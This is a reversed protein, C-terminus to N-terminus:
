RVNTYKAESSWFIVFGILFTGLGWAIMTSWESLTPTQNYMVSNRVATLFQYAPNAVMVELMFPHDVFREISFFVGSVFFWARTFLNVFHKLDPVWATAWAVLFLLGTGFLGMLLAILPVLVITWSLPTSWQTVLAMLIGVVLTPLADLITRLAASFVLAARPFRFASIFSKQSRIFGSGQSMLSTLLGFFTIGLVLYGIFNDIGRNTKLMLGFILGYMLADLFPRIILWARGLWLDRSPAFARSRADAVIFHRRAYLEKVYRSFRPRSELPSLTSDDVLITKSSNRLLSDSESFGEGDTIGGPADASMSGNM